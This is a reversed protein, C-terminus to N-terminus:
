ITVRIEDKNSETGGDMSGYRMKRKWLWWRGIFLMAAAVRLVGDLFFAAFIGIRGYIWIGILPAVFGSINILTNFVSIYVTKKNGPLTELLGCFLALTFGAATIGVLANVILIYYFGFLRTFFFPNVAIGLVGFIIVLRSGKKDILRNWLSFSLFSTVGASLSVMGLQFEDLMAHNANYLFFLPWGLQWTIHFLFACLCFVVFNRNRFMEHLDSKRFSADPKAMSGDVPGTKRERVRSLFFLQLLSIAFCAAYFLQYIVIREGESKPIETLVLGTFLVTVLGFFAGYKSRLSYVRNAEAGTFNDAFFSQWTTVYLSGPWNMLGILLVFALVKEQHQIFPIFAIAAYFLGTFFILLIATRKKRNLREILIGFPILVFVAVLPPLANILAIHIDRAGMRKAFMQVFPNYLNLVVTFAVGELIIYLTNSRYLKNDRKKDSNRM